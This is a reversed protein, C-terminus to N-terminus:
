RPGPRAHHSPQTITAALTARLEDLDPTILAYLGPHASNKRVAEWRPQRWGHPHCTITFAPYAITLLALNTDDPTAPLGPTPPM